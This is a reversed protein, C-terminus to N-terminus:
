PSTSVLGRFSLPNHSVLAHCGFRIDLEVGAKFRKGGAQEGLKNTRQASATRAIKERDNTAFPSEAGVKFSPAAKRAVGQDIRSDLRVACPPHDPAPLSRRIGVGLARDTRAKPEVRIEVAIQMAVITAHAGRGFYGRRSSPRARTRRIALSAASIPTLSIKTVPPSGNRSASM